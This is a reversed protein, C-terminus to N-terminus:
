TLPTMEHGERKTTATGWKYQCAVRAPNMRGTGYRDSAETHLTEELAEM